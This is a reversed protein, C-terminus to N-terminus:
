LKLSHTGLMIYDALVLLGASAIALRRSNERKCRLNIEENTNIGKWFVARSAIPLRLPDILTLLLFPVCFWDSFGNGILFVIFELNHERKLSGFSIRSKESMSFFTILRWPFAVAVLLICLLYILDWLALSACLRYTKRSPGNTQTHYYSILFHKSQNICGTRVM